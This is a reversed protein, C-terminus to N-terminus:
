SLRAPLPCENARALAGSRSCAICTPHPSIAASRTAGTVGNYNLLRAQSPVGLAAALFMTVAMSAVTGNLSVVAPAPEHIGVVYPDVAREFDTLLDVRVAEPNLLNGCVLCGLNPALMQTRGAIHSIRGASIVIAVGMDIVPVLYQYAFQNLVARSGQSDTCCFVFDTAVLEEAERALLASGCRTEVDASPNIRNAHAAAVEVKSKGVDSETAGVLRNLNTREVVDPDMLLFRRVGMHALQELVISGTGGLGVIGVRMERLRDQGAAGFVRAQRDFSSQDAKTTADRGWFLHSGVGIVELTEGSGLVRAMSVEPTILMAAHVVDPTRQDLFEVLIKEGADDVQSFQNMAFPHSHVFILSEGSKRARQAVISVVEPRLQAATNTRERYDDSTMWQVDRVVIRALRGNKVVARGFLIACAEEPSNLLEERLKALLESTLTLRSM